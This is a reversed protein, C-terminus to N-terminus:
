AENRMHEWCRSLATVLELVRFPKGIFDDMGAEAAQTRDEQMVGATLAVIWINPNVGGNIRRIIRTAEIGDVEPMHIDMLVMDYHQRSVAEVVERGNAVADPTYGMRNLINVAVKQNIRNDEALLISMPHHQAFTTDVFPEGARKLLPNKQGHVVFARHIRESIGVADQGDGLEFLADFTFVSGEGERSEVELHGGMLSVLRRCISLGLGTGGFQRTRSSDIQQFSEFLMHLKDEPIGIGSDEVAFRLRIEQEMREAVSVCLEVTGEPTFKAANNLLNVLVQRLRTVDGFLKLPVGQELTYVLGLGKEIAPATVLDLSEEICAHLDFRELELEMKGAEIKSFDLIDNIIALLSDGSVRITEAYDRQLETLESNLLLGTMGIVANMPTRIEHSMSALFVSKAKTAAEAQEKSKRLEQNVFALEATRRQVESTIMRERELFISIMRFLLLSIIVGLFFILWPYVPMLKKVADRGARYTVVFDQGALSFRIVAEFRADTGDLRAADGAHVVEEVGSVQDQSTLRVVYIMDEEVDRIMRAVDFRGLLFGVLNQRRGKETFDVAGKRYVAQVVDLVENTLFFMEPEGTDRALELRELQGPMTALDLGALWENGVYPELFFVPYYADRKGATVAEGDAHWDRIRYSGFGNRRAQQVMRFRQRHSVFPVWMVAEVGETLRVFQQGVITFEDRTVQESAEFVSRMAEIVFLRQILGDILDESYDQAQARFREMGAHLQNTWLMYALMGSLLVGTFFMLGAPLLNYHRKEATM